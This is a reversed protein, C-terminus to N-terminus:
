VATIRVREGITIPATVLPMLSKTCDYSTTRLYLNAICDHSPVGHEFPAFQRLWDLKEYGFDEIAEWGNAGSVVACITLLVLDVLAHRKRREIRPDELSTFHELISASM